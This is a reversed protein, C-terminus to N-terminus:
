NNFVSALKLDEKIIHQNIVDYTIFGILDQAALQGKQFRDRLSKVRSLLDAHIEQHTESLPYGAKTMIEEETAFHKEIDSVLEDMMLEIDAKSLKRMIADLLENGLAFLRRHQRDIVENGVSFSPQWTFEIIPQPSQRKQEAVKRERKLKSRYYKRQQAIFLGASLLLIGSTFGPFNHLTGLVISGAGIYIYPLLEYIWKPIPGQEM